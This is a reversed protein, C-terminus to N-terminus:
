APWAPAQFVEELKKGECRFMRGPFKHMLRYDHTAMIVIAGQRSVDHLLEVAMDSVAPDLNGTPEDALIVQPKNLIARALVLRQQEGGSLEHPRKKEKGSLGTLLLADQIASIMTNNDNMGTARLVFALNEFASRDSLLQFDQFIIGLKRRLFPVENRKVRTLDFGAIQASGAKIPLASYLAKLLSSKGAGTSGFLYIFQGPFVTLSVDELVLTDGQCIDANKLEIIPTM